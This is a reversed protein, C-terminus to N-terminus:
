VLEYSFCYLKPVVPTFIPGWRYMLSYIDWELVVLLGAQGEGLPWGKIHLTVSM